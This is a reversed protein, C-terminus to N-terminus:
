QMEEHEEAYFIRTHDIESIAKEKM